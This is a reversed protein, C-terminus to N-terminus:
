GDIWMRYWAAEGEDPLYARIKPRAVLWARYEAEETQRERDERLYETAHASPLTVGNARALDRFERRTLPWKHPKARSGFLFRRGDFRWGFKDDLVRENPRDLPPMIRQMWAFTAQREDDEYRGRWACLVDIYADLGAITRRRQADNM